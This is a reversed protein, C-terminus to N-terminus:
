SGHPLMYPITPSGSRKEETAAHQSIMSLLSSGSPFPLPKNQSTVDILQSLKGSLEKSIQNQQEILQNQEDLIGHQENFYEGLAEGGKDGLFYGLGGGILGGIATGVIPVASGLTAGITMGAIAGGTGGVVGAQKVNRQYTSLNEDTATDYLHYAGTALTLPVAAGKMFPRFRSTAGRVTGNKGGGTLVQGIAAGGATSAVAWLAGAAALSAATLEENNRMINVLGSEFSGLTSNVSEYIKIQALIKEQELAEAQAFGTEARKKSLSEVSGEGHWSKNYIEGFSGDKVGTVLASMGSLSQKNHYIDGFQGAIVLEIAKRITDAQEVDNNKLATELNQTLTNYEPNKSLQRNMLNAMATTTDIDKLQSDVLYQTLDFVVEGKKSIKTPDGAEVTINKAIADKFHKQNVLGYVDEINTVAEGATGTFKRALQLHTTVTNLGKEGSYGAKTAVALITPLHQAMDSLEFGGAFGSAMMRDLAAQTRNPAVGFQKTQQVLKAMDAESASAAFASKSVALLPEKLDATTEYNGSAALINAAESVGELTGHGQRVANKAYGMLETNAAKTQENSMGNFGNTLSANADFIAKEFNRGRELPTAVIAKTAMYGGAVGGMVTAGKQWLSSTQQVNQQVRKSSQEVRKMWDAQQRIQTTQNKLVNEILRNTRLLQDGARATNQTAQAGARATNVFKAQASSIQTWQTNIKTTATVQQDSIRKMEQGANGKIQLTLSVTTNRSSM